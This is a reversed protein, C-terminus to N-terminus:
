RLLQQFAVATLDEVRLPGTFPLVIDGAGDVMMEGSLEPQGVVTVAIRDGPALAYAEGDRSAAAFVPSVFTLAAGVAAMRALRRLLSPRHRRVALSIRTRGDMMATSQKKRTPPRRAAAAVPM